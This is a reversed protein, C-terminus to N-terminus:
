VDKSLSPTDEKRSAKAYQDMIDYVYIVSCIVSVVLLALNWGIPLQNSKTLKGGSQKKKFTTLGANNSVSLKLSIIM